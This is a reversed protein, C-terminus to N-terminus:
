RFRPAAIEVGKSSLWDKKVSRVRDIVPQTKRVPVATQKEAHHGVLSPLVCMMGMFVLGFSIFGSVVMATLDFNGTLFLVGAGLLFAAWMTYYIKVFM